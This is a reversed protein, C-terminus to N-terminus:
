TQRRERIAPPESWGGAARAAVVGSQRGRTPPLIFHRGGALRFARSVPSARLFNLKPV